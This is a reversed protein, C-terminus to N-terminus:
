YVLRTITGVGFSFADTLSTIFMSIAADGMCEGVRIEPSHLRNTRRLAAVMLFMNDTGVAVILFPMVGVIDNYLVGAMSLAGVATAIGMGANCVGLVALVPKSLVWDIYCTGDIFALSCIVSFFVLISFSVIFRPIM